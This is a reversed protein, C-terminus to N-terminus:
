RSSRKRLFTSLHAAQEAIREGLLDVEGDM